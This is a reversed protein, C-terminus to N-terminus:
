TAAKPDAAPKRQSAIWAILDGLRIELTGRGGVKEAKLDGARVAKLITGRSRESLLQAEPLRV